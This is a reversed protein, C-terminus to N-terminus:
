LIPPYTFTSFNCVQVLEDLEHLSLLARSATVSSKDAAVGSAIAIAIFLLLVSWRNVITARM